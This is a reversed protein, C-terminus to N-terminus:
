TKPNYRKSVVMEVVWQTKKWSIRKTSRKILTEARVNGAIKTSCDDGIGRLRKKNEDEGAQEPIKTWAVVGQGVNSSATWGQGINPLQLCSKHIQIASTSASSSVNRERLDLTPRINSPASKSISIYPACYSMEASRRQWDGSLHHRGLDIERTLQLSNHVSQRDSSATAM